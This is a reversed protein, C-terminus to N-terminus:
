KPLDKDLVVELMSLAGREAHVVCVSPCMEHDGGRQAARWVELVTRQKVGYCVLIFPCTRGGAGVSGCARCM